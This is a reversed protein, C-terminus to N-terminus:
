PMIVSLAPAPCQEGATQLSPRGSVRGTKPPVVSVSREEGAAGIGLLSEGPLCPPPGNRCPGKPDATPSRCRLPGTLRQSVRGQGAEGGEAECRSRVFGPSLCNAHSLPRGAAVTLSPNLGTSQAAPAGVTVAVNGWTMANWEALLGLTGDRHLGYCTLAIHGLDAVLLAVLYNRVVKLESTTYLVAVATLFVLGYVNGLQQAILRSNESAAVPVAQTLQESIFWDPYLM